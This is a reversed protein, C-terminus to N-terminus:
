YDMGGANYELHVCACRAHNCTQKGVRGAGYSMTPHSAQHVFSTELVLRLRLSSASSGNRAGSLSAGSLSAGSLSAGSLSAGSM